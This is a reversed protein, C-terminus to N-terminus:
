ESTSDSHATLFQAMTDGRASRPSVNFIALIDCIISLCQLTNNLRIIKADWPDSQLMFQDM